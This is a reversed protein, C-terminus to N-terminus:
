QLVSTMNVARSASRSVTATLSVTRMPPAPHPSLANRANCRAVFGIPAYSENTKTYGKCYWFELSNQGYWLSLYRHGPRRSNRNKKRCGTSSRFIALFSESRGPVFPPRTPLKQAAMYSTARKTLSIPRSKVGTYECSYWIQFNGLVSSQRRGLRVPTGVTSWNHALSSFNDWVNRKKAPAWSLALESKEESVWYLSM